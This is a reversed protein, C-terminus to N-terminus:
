VIINNVANEAYLNIAKIELVINCINILEYEQRKYVYFNYEIVM